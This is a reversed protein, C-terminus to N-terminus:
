ESAAQKSRADRLTGIFGLNLGCANCIADCAMTERYSEHKCRSQKWARKIAGPAVFVLLALALLALPAGVYWGFWAAVANGLWEM